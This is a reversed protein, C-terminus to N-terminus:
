IASENLHHNMANFQKTLCPRNTRQKFNRFFNNSKVLIIISNARFQILADVREIKCSLFFVLSSGWVLLPLPDFFTLIRTILVTYSFCFQHALKSITSFTLSMEIQLNNEHSIVRTSSTIFRILHKQWWCSILKKWKWFETYM